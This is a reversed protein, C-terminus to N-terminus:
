LEEIMIFPVRCHLQLFAASWGFLNGHSDAGAQCVFNVTYYASGSAILESDPVLFTGSDNGSDDDWADSSGRWLEASKGPFSKTAGGTNGTVDASIAGISHATPSGHSECDWAFKWEFYPRIALVRAPDSPVIFLAVGAGGFSHSGATASAVVAFNGTAVNNIVAPRNTGQTVDLAFDYPPGIINLGRKVKFVPPGATVGDRIPARRSPLSARLAALSAKTKPDFEKEGFLRSAIADDVVHKHKRHDAWRQYSETERTAFRLQTQKVVGGVPKTLRFVHDKSKM